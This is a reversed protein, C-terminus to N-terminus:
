VSFINVDYRSQVLFFDNCLDDIELEEFAVWGCSDITNDIKLVPAACTVLTHKANCGNNKNLYRCNLTYECYDPPKIIPGQTNSSGDKINVNSGEKSKVTKIWKKAKSIKDKASLLQTYWVLPDVILCLTNNSFRYEIRYNQITNKQTVDLLSSAGRAITDPSPLSDFKITYEPSEIPEEFHLYNGIPIMQISEPPNEPIAKNCDTIFFM